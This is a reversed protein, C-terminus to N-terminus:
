KGCIMVKWDYLKLRFRNLLLKSVKEEVEVNDLNLFFVESFNMFVEFNILIIVVVFVVEELYFM